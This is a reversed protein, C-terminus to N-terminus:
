NLWADVEELDEVNLIGAAQKLRLVNLIYDYRSRAYNTEAQLLVRRSALVDVTTRTGVEFGAETAKLATESSELAQRLAQVRSIESLVGLYADRTQRETERAVRELAERAARHRYVAERVRSSTFGGTFLPMSFQLSITDDVSDSDANGGIGNNTRFASTDRDGRGAVLDLTPYYASRRNRVDDSAIEAGLRSAILALNQDQATDVWAQEDSPDPQKMPLQENPFALEQLYEGTIDRIADQASALVRKAPIEAAIALDHAAKAEQVDTIAILGVEFRKEAQELQRGIAERAGVGASLADEAALVNFYTDGVRLLLQQKAAEYNASAQSARKEAQHLAVFQDWRFLTQRLQLQWNLTQSDTKSNTTRNIFEGTTPDFQPFTSSGSSNTDSYNSTLDLQPLVASRAQPAAELAALYNAEAERIVPDSQLARQYVEILSEAGHAQLAVTFTIAAILIRATPCRAM